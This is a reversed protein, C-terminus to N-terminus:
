VQRPTRSSKQVRAEVSVVVDIKSLVDIREIM